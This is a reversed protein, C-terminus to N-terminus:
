IDFKLLLTITRGPQPHYSPVQINDGTPPAILDGTNSGTDRGVGYYQENFLNRIVLQPQFNKFGNYTIALNVKKYAPAYGGENAQLWTNQENAKRRGVINARANINLKEQWLLCNVGFNLKNTAIKEIDSWAENANKGKTFSYNAYLRIHEIPSYIADFSFGAINYEDINSPKHGMFATSDETFGILDDLRSYYINAKLRYRKEPMYNIELETTKIKEPKLIDAKLDQNSQTQRNILSINTMADPQRFAQGYLLKFNITKAPTIILTARPSHTLNLFTGFDFRSGVSYSIYENITNNWLAYAAYEPLVTLSSTSINSNFSVVEQIVQDSYLNFNFLFRGGVIVNNNDNFNIRLKEDLYAQYGAMNKSHKVTDTNQPVIPEHWVARGVLESELTVKESFQQNNRSYVDLGSMGYGVPSDYIYSTGGVFFSAPDRETGWYFIGTEANKGALKLRLSQADISNSFGDPISDRMIPPPLNNLNGGNPPLGNTPGSNPPLIPPRNVVIDHWYNAPDPRNFGKDGDTHYKRFALSVHIDDNIKKGVLGQLDIENYSGYGAKAYVGEYNKKTIFHIVGSFAQGGYLASGPGQIVEIRDLDHLMQEFTWQVSWLNSIYNQPINDIMVLIQPNGQAGIGRHHSYNPFESAGEEYMLFDFGPIDQAVEVFDRYGRNEIMEKTIITINQPAKALNEEKMSASTVKLALLDEWTLVYSKTRDSALAEPNNSSIFLVIFILYKVVGLTRKSM